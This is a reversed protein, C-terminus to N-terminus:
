AVACWQTDSEFDTWDPVYREIFLTTYTITQSFTQLMSAAALGAPIYKHRKECVMAWM